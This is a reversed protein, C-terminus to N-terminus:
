CGVPPSPEFQVVIKDSWIKSIVPDKSHAMMVEIDEGYLVMGWKLGSELTDKLDTIPPTYTPTMLHSKLNGSYSSAVLFCYLM